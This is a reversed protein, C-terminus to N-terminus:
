LNFALQSIKSEFLDNYFNVGIGVLRIPLMHRHYAIKLLQYFLEINLNISTSEATTLIFNNFKIKIFQNKIRFDSFPQLRYLLKNYLPPLRELCDLLCPLDTVFTEEVSVSKRLRCNEVERTDIGRCYDFFKQGRIGFLLNLKSISLLQLDKCTYIGLNHFRKATVKGIGHIKDIPLDAIFDAVMEPTIVFQGDPKNWDCAIKALLKNPAIGASATLHYRELINKRIERAIKTASGQLQKCQTVDLFAEDLSLPEVIDTYEFFIQRIQLSVNKYEPMQVPLLILQPCLQLAYAAAMGSHIGYSRAEYNCTSIVGRHGPAGGVAIPKSKLSPNNRIEIAAYFCDMDIHIIKRTASSM